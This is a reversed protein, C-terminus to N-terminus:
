EETIQLPEGNPTVYWNSYKEVLEFLKMGTLEYNITSDDLFSFLHSESFYLNGFETKLVWESIIEGETTDYLNGEIFEIETMPIECIFTSNWWIEATGQYTVFGYSSAYEENERFM